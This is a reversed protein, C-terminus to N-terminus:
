FYLCELRLIGLIGPWNYTATAQSFSLVWALFCSYFAGGSDKM